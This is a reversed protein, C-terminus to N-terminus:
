HAEEFLNRYFVVMLERTKEDSVPWLTLIESRAGALRLSRQLGIVGDPFSTEGVGTECASLVVLQTGRLQLMSADKATLIGEDTENARKLAIGGRLLPDTNDEPLNAHFYGHTALHLIQPRYVRELLFKRDLQDAPALRASPIM